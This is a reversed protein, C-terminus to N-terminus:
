VAVSMLCVSKMNFTVMLGLREARRSVEAFWSEISDCVAPHLCEPVSFSYLLHDQSNVIEFYNCSEYLYNCCRISSCTM